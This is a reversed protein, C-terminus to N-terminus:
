KIGISASRKGFKNCKTVVKVKDGKKASPIKYIFIGGKKTEQKIPMQNIIEKENILVKVDDIFHDKNDSVKHTFKVELRMKAKDFNLRVMSAPHAHLIYTLLLIIPFTLKKM